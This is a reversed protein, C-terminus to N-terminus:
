ICHHLPRRNKFPTCHPFCHIWRGRYHFSPAKRHALVTRKRPERIHIFRIKNRRNNGNQFKQRSILPIYCIQDRKFGTFNTRVFGRGSLKPPVRIRSWHHFYESRNDKM